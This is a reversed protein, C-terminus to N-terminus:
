FILFFSYVDIELQAKWYKTFTAVIVTHRLQSPRNKKTHSIYQPIIMMRCIALIGLLTCKSLYFSYSFNDQQTNNNTKEVTTKEQM